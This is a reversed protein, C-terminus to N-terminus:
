EIWDCRLACVTARGSCVARREADVASRSGAAPIRYAAHCSRVRVPSAATEKPSMCRGQLLASRMPEERMSVYSVTAELSIASPNATRQQSRRIEVEPAYSAVAIPASWHARCRQCPQPPNSHPASRLPHASCARVCARAILSTCCRLMRLWPLHFVCSAAHLACRAVTVKRRMSAQSRSRATPSRGRARTTTCTDRMTCTWAM